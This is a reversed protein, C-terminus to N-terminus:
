LTAGVGVPTTARLLEAQEGDLRQLRLDYAQALLDLSDAIGDRPATDPSSLRVLLTSEIGKGDAARRLLLTTVAVPTPAACVLRNVRDVVDPGDGSVAFMTSWTGAVSVDSWSEFARDGARHGTSPSAPGMWTAFLSEVAEPSVRHVTVSATSLEQRAHVACRRLIQEIAEQRGGRAAIAQSAIRTDLTLLCYRAALPVLAAVPGTPAQRAVQAPATLTLLRVSSLPVDEIQLLGSLLNVPVPPDDNLVSDLGLMLPLCWTTGSRVVGIAAGHNGGPVTEVSFEGVVGGVGSTGSTRWRRSFLGLRSILVQYLWRRRVPLAAMVLIVVGVAIGAIQWPTSRTLGGVVAAGALELLVLQTRSLAPM